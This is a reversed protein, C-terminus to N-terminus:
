KKLITSNIDFNTKESPNSFLQIKMKPNVSQTTQQLPMEYKETKLEVVNAASNNAKAATQSKNEISKNLAIIEQILSDNRNQCIISEKEIQKKLQINELSLVKIQEKEINDEDPDNEVPVFVQVKKEIYKLETITQPTIKQLSDLVTQLEYNKREIQALQKVKNNVILVGAIASSIFFVALLVAAIRWLGHVGSQWNKENSIRNWLKDKQPYNISADKNQYAEAIKHELHKEM